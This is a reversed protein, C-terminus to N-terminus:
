SPFGCELEELLCIAEQIVRDPFVEEIRETVDIYYYYSPPQDPDGFLVLFNLRYGRFLGAKRVLYSIVALESWDLVEAQTPNSVQIIEVLRRHRTVIDIEGEVGGHRVPVRLRVKQQKRLEGLSLGRTMKMMVELVCQYAHHIPVVKSDDSKNKWVSVPVPMKPASRLWKLVRAVQRVKM